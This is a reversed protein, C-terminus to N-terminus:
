IAVNNFILVTPTIILIVIFLRTLESCVPSTAPQLLDIFTNTSNLFLLFYLYYIKLYVPTREFNFIKSRSTSTVSAKVYIHTLTLHHDIVSIAKTCLLIKSLDLM